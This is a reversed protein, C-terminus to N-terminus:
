KIMEFIDVGFEEKIARTYHVQCPDANVLNSFFTHPSQKYEQMDKKKREIYQKRKKVLGLNDLELLSILNKAEIDFEASPLYDGKDYVLRTEFDTATPSLVPQFKDWKSSKKINWERKVFFWNEYNDDTTYKITPNFHEVDKADTISIFEDTYACFGKHEVLLIETIKRNNKSDGKKYVLADSLIKSDALKVAGRM